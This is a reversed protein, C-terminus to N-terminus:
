GWRRPSTRPDSPLPSSPRVTAPAAAVTEIVSRYQLALNSWYFREVGARQRDVGCGMADEIARGIGDFDAPDLCVGTGSDALLEFLASGRPALGLIPRGSAMYDYVKYPTSYTMHEGVVALLLHARQLETLLEGYPLRPRAEIFEDLQGARIRAREAEPLAGYTVVRVPRHLRAALRRAAELVPVLSRGTFIEGAHVILIPGTAAPTRIRAMADFGNAVVFNRTSDCAGFSEEFAARMASTNLVRAASRNVIARELRHALSQALASRRWAPWAHASWPDRYDLVLPWRLRRAIRAGALLAAFPPSTAIVVGGPPLHRAVELAKRTAAGAWFIEQGVPALMRRTVANVVRSLLGKGPRPLRIFGACAHVRGAVPLSGDAKVESRDRADHTVIHVDYGLRCFERALFSFRKAGVAPDPAFWYSVIILPRPNV